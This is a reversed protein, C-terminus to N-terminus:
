YELLDTDNNSHELISSIGLEHSSEPQIDKAQMRKHIYESSRKQDVMEIQSNPISNKMM